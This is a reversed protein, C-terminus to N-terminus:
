PSLKEKAYAPDFPPPPIPIHQATPLYQYLIPAIARDQPTADVFSTTTGKLAIQVSDIKTGTSLPPQSLLLLPMPRFLLPIAVASTSIENVPDSASPGSVNLQALDQEAVLGAHLLSTAESPRRTVAAIVRVSDIESASASQMTAKTIAHSQTSFYALEVTLRKIEQAYKEDLDLKEVITEL